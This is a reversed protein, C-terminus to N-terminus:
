VESVLFLSQLTPLQYSLQKNAKSNCINKLWHFYEKAFQKPSKTQGILPMLAMVFHKAQAISLSLKTKNCQEILEVAQEYTDHSAGCHSLGDFLAKYQTKNLSPADFVKIKKGHSLDCKKGLSAELFAQFSGYGQWNNNSFAKCLTFTQYYSLEDGRSIFKNLNKEVIECASIGIDLMSFRADIKNQTSTLLKKSCLRNTLLCIDKKCLSMNKFLQAYDKDNTFVGISDTTMHTNLWADNLIDQDAQTSKKDEQYPTDIFLMNEPLALIDVHLYAHNGYLKYTVDEGSFNRESISNFFQPLNDLLQQGLRDKSGIVNDLDVFITRKLRIETSNNKSFLAIKINNFLTNLM